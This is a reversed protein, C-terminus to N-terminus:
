KKLYYATHTNYNNTTLDTVDYFKFNDKAKKDLGKEVYGFCWSLFTFIEPIFLATLMFYFANKMVKSRSENFYIFVFNKSTSLRVKLMDNGTGTKM